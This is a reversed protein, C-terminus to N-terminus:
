RPSNRLAPIGSHNDSRRGSRLTPKQCMLSMETVDAFAGSAAVRLVRVRGGARRVSGELVYRVGLELGIKRVDVTLGKYTFSSNRAIVFIWPVYSLATILDESLGDAFYEQDPDNSMNEFPLVALSPKDPREPAVHASAQAKIAVEYVRLPKAINKLIQVGTDIFDLDLKNEVDDFVRASVSVGGPKAVGELRAAVNVGDGLIDDGEVIVEGVHVGM